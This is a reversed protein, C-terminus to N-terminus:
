FIITKRIDGAFAQQNADANYLERWTRVAANRRKEMESAELRTFFEMKERLSNASIGKVVLEGNENNVIESTGGVDTALVPIANAMAEMVSVPIGEATSVNVFLDVPNKAYHELVVHNPVRGVLRYSMNSKSALKKSALAHIKREQQGGGFHTWEMKSDEILSLAEIIKEVNKNPKLESCSVIRFVGDASGRNYTSHASRIGLRSIALEAPANPYRAHFHNLANESIFYLRKAIQSVTDLYPIYPPSHMYEYVEGSHVRAIIQVRPNTAKIRAMPLLINPLLWYAYLM